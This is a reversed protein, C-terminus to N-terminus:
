LYTHSKPSCRAESKGMIYGMLRGSPSEMVKFYEPWVALYNLYFSLGYTETLPDMNIQNLKFLDTCRFPRLTTM